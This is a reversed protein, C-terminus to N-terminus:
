HTHDPRVEGKPDRAAAEQWLREFVETTMTVGIREFIQKVQSTSALMSDPSSELCGTDSVEQPERATFFDVEYVGRNSYISPYILGYASSEDGYNTNDGVRRIRPAPLDSRITAVGYSRYNHTPVAGVRPPPLPLPSLLSSLPSLLPSLPSPFRSPIISIVLRVNNDSM